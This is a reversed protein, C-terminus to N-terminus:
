DEKRPPSKDDLVYELEGFWMEANYEEALESTGEGWFGKRKRIIVDEM